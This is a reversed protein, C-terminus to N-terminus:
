KLDLNPDLPVIEFFHNTPNQKKNPEIHSIIELTGQNREGFKTLAQHALSQNHMNDIEKEQSSKTYNITKM